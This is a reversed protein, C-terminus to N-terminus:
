RRSYNSLTEVALDAMWTVTAPPITFSNALMSFALTQGDRTRVYGSLARVNAISGTKALANGAARTNKMRSAITGDKGAIPLTSAFAEHHRPDRYMHELVAVIMDATVYDYRSLGSGDVQVYSGPAVGWARFIEQAAARGAEATGRGNKAAGVAKLLTEAYLNQSVKMMVTAIDRVPPSVSVALPPTGEPISYPHDSADVAEGSVAIGRAILADKVAQAFYVAPNVVAVERSAPQADGAISGTVVLVADNPPREFEISAPSQPDGTITRNDLRLGSGPTLSLVAPDGPKAGPQITLLATDEDYELAGIPAAYGYQLYDWAWGQGLTAADFASGDGVIAGDIRSIGATKLAAAWGDFVASAHNGRSNITPDGSGIVILDGKLAGDQVRAASALTTRFQYDWGLVEAAAALTLIKMNSAPMVLKRPNLSYVVEGTELSKVEVGWLGHEMLPATFIHDLDNALARAARTPHTPAAAPRPHACGSMLLLLLGTTAAPALRFGGRSSLM